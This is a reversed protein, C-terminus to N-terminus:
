RALRLRPPAGRLVIGRLSGDPWHPGYHREVQDLLDPVEIGMFRGDADPGGLDVVAQLRRYGLWSAKRVGQASGVNHKIRAASLLILGQLFRGEASHRDVQKWLQEWAEHAEWFYGQHYLDIGYLYLRNERWRRPPLRPPETDPLGFSHGRPDRLPHPNLGAVFRYRPLDRSPCHRPAESWLPAPEKLRPASVSSPQSASTVPLL